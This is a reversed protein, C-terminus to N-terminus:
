ITVGGDVLVAQGTVFRSEDSLLFVVMPAIDDVTALRGMPQRAVFDKEAQVPDAAAAIRGRLSPTDVTGPCLANCRLGQKVFDAAVSKTLGIVAAKTTGYAFRNPFGKISSAMSAMNLISAGGTAGARELLGPLLARTVHFMSKVNLDFAFDWDADGCELITGNHVVGACNFIADFPAQAAAFAAIASADRVDLRVTKIRDSEAALSRLGDEQIDTAVVEAGEAACALASARGIGQAAASIFVRKDRLRM